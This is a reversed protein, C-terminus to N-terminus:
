LHEEPNSHHDGNEIHDDEDMFEPMKKGGFPTSQFDLSEL